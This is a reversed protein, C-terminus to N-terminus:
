HDTNTSEHQLVGLEGLGKTEPVQASDDPGSPVTAQYSSSCPEAPQRSHSPRDNRWMASMAM